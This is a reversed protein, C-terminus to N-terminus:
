MLRCSKLYRTTRPVAIYTPQNNRRAEAIVREM